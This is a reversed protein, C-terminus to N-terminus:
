VTSELRATSQSSLTKPEVMSIIPLEPLLRSSGSNAFVVRVTVCENVGPRSDALAAFDSTNDACSHIKWDCTIGDVEVGRDACGGNTYEGVVAAMTEQIKNDRTDIAPDADTDVYLAVSRAGEAAAQTINQKFSILFGMGIIAILLFSLFIGVLAFELIATGEEPRRRGPRPSGPLSAVTTDHTHPTTLSSTMQTSQRGTGPLAQQQNNPRHTWYRCIKSGASYGRRTMRSHDM